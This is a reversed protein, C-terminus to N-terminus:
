FLQVKETQFVKASLPRLILSLMYDRIGNGVSVAVNIYLWFVASSYFLDLSNHSYKGAAGSAAPFNALFGSELKDLRISERRATIRLSDSTVIGVRDQYSVEPESLILQTADQKLSSHEIANKVAETLM